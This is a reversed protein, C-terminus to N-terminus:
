ALRTAAVLKRARTTPRANSVLEVITEAVAPGDQSAGSLTAACRRLKEVITARDLPRGPDGPADSRSVVLAPRGEREVTVRVAAGDLTEDSIVQVRTEAFTSLREDAIREPTNSDLWWDGDAIAAAAVWHASQQASLQDSWVGRGSVEYASPPLRVEIAAIEELRVGHETAVELCAEILSQVSSAAPWRRLSVEELEWHGGLGDTVREPDAGPSHTTVLGGDPATLWREPASAGSRGMLLALLGAMSGRAQNFKVAETGLAAFTGAAQLSAHALASSTEEQGLGLLRAGGAAAGIQGVVGPTHWGRARLAPYDLGSALRATLEFGVTAATVLNEWTADSLETLALLPPVTVPTVHCLGPRYVDCLTASTMAYANLYVAAAPAASGRGIVTCDGPGAFLRAVPEIRDVLPVTRGALASALADLLLDEVRRQVREPVDAPEIGSAWRAIEEEVPAGSDAASM